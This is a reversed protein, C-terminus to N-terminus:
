MENARPGFRFALTRRWAMGAHRLVDRGPCGYCAVARGGRITFRAPQGGLKPEAIYRRETLREPRELRSYLM